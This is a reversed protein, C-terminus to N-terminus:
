TRMWGLTANTDGGPKYEAGLPKTYGLAALTKFIRPYAVEGEDPRGRAPVGAFQIHGIHALLKEIRNSLDGKM